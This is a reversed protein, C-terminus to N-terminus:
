PANSKQIRPNEYKPFDADPPAYAYSIGPGRFYVRAWRGKQDLWPQKERIILTAEPPPNTMDDALGSYLIEFQDAAQKTQEREEEPVRSPFSTFAEEFSAPFRGQHEKAYNWVTAGLNEALRVKVATGPGFQADHPNQQPPAAPTQPARSGSKLRAIEGELQRVKVAQGRLRLLESADAQSRLSTSRLEEHLRQNEETLTATDQLQQLLRANEAILNKARSRHWVLAGAMALLALTVVTAKLKSKKM